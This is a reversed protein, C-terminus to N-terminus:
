GVGGWGASPRESGLTEGETKKLFRTPKKFCVKNRLCLKQNIFSCLHGSFGWVARM